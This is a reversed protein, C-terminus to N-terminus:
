QWESSALSSPPKLLFLRLRGSSNSPLQVLSHGAQNPADLIKSLELLKMAYRHQRKNMCEYRIGSRQYSM